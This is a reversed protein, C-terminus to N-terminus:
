MLELAVFRENNSAEPDELIKALQQLHSARFLHSVDRVAEAALRSLAEPEIRLIQRGGFELTSVGEDGLSRYVTDDAELEFLEQYQFDPM